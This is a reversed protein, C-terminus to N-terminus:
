DPASVCGDESMSLFIKNIQTHLPLCASNKKLREASIYRTPTASVSLLIVSLFFARKLCNVREKWVICLFLEKVRLKGLGGLTQANQHPMTLLEILRPNAGPELKFHANCEHDSNDERRKDLRYFVSYYELESQGIVRSELQMDPAAHFVFGPHLDYITGNVCIRAQGRVTFLFGHRVTRFERLVSKPQIVLRYVDEIDNPDNGFVGALKEVDVM